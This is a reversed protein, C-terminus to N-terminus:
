KAREKSRISEDNQDAFIVVDVNMSGVHSSTGSKGVGTLGVFTNVDYLTFLTERNVNEILALHIISDARWYAFTFDLHGKIKFVM